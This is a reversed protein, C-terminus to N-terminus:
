DQAPKTVPDPEAATESKKKAKPKKKKAAKKKAPKMPTGATKAARAAILEVAEELTVNAPDSSVPLTANIKGHKVYPGYRGEHLTVPGGQQPHEGL